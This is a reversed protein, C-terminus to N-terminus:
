DMLGDVLTGPQLLSHYDSGNFETISVGSHASLYLASSATMRHTTETVEALATVNECRNLTCTRESFYLLLMPSPPRKIGGLMRKLIRKRYNVPLWLSYKWTSPFFLVHMLSPRSSLSALGPLALSQNSKIFVFIPWTEPRVLM